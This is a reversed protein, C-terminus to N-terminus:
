GADSSAPANARDGSAKAHARAGHGNRRKETFRPFATIVFLLGAGLAILGAVFQGDIVGVALASGALLASWLYMLLVAQKHGHGIDMLRHHIHQKDAQAIGVGHRTRRIIALVVDLFPVFMVLVPVVVVGAIVVYDGPAPNATKGLGSITAISLLMGLLMAGSDGMFIKARNFNWPLFGACIGVTIASLLLAGQAADQFLSPSRFEYAFFVGAAIAVMGAALGDLGDVLNIANVIAVVYVITLAIGLDGSLSVIGLGPLFVYLLEVGFLVLVGGVFIQGTLKTLARVGKADDVVGLVVIATCTVVAAPVMKNSVRVVAFFPMSMAAALAAIFGLYMAIGGSTPTPVPHVKRDSPRDIIGLRIVLLRVLPTAVLTVGAAIAGVILYARV